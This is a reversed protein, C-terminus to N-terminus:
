DLEPALQHLMHSIHFTFEPLTLCRRPQPNPDRYQQYCVHNEYVQRRRRKRGEEVEEDSEGESSSEHSIGVGLAHRYARKIHKQSGSKNATFLQLLAM